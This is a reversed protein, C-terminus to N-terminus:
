TSGPERPHGGLMSSIKYVGETTAKEGDTVGVLVRAGLRKNM